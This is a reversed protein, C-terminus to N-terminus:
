PKSSRLKWLIVRFFYEIIKIQRRWRWPQIILRFLWEFGIQRMWVPARPIIGAKFEFGGGVGMCIVGKLLARNDYFLKEQQPSGFASIIIQPKYAAVKSFLAEYDDEKPAKIDSFGTLAFIDINPYKKTYCDKVKKALNRYGGLLMIRIGNEYGIKVLDNMFDAGALRRGHPIKLLDCGLAVAMGDVLQIDAESLIIRFNEDSMSTMINEPNLSVIHFFSYPNRIHKKIKDLITEFTQNKIRINLLTEASSHDNM